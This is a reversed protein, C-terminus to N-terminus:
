WELGLWDSMVGSDPGFSTRKAWFRCESWGVLGGGQSALEGLKLRRLGPIDELERPVNRIFNHSADLWTLNSLEGVDASLRTLRTFSAHSVNHM